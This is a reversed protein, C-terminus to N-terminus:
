GSWWQQQQKPTCPSDGMLMVVVKRAMAVQRHSVGAKGRFWRWRHPFGACGSDSTRMGPSCQWPSNGFVSLASCSSIASGCLSDSRSGGCDCRRSGSRGRCPQPAVWCVISALSCGRGRGLLSRRSLLTRTDSLTILRHLPFDSLVSSAFHMTACHVRGITDHDDVIPCLLLSLPPISGAMNKNRTNEHRHLLEDVSSHPSCKDPSLPYVCGM